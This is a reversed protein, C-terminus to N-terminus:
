QVLVLWAITGFFLLMPYVALARRQEPVLQAMFGVSARTSWITAVTVTPLQVVSMHVLHCVLSAACLPATCYGLVCVSQMTSVKGGLLVANLTVAAAGLWVIVFVAAFIAASQDPPASFSLSSALALCLLLPGWLDWNRLSANDGTDLPVLVHKLKAAILRLDRMVTASLPEELTDLETDEDALSSSSVRGDPAAPSTM